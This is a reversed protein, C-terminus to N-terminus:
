VLFVTLNFYKVHLNVIEGSKTVSM